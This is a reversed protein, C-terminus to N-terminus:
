GKAGAPKKGDSYDVTFSPRCGGPDVHLYDGRRRLGSFVTEGPPFAIRSEGDKLSKWQDFLWLTIKM